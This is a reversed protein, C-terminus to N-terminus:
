EVCDNDMIYYSVLRYEVPLIFVVNCNIDLSPESGTDFNVTLMDDDATPRESKDEYEKKRAPFLERGIPKREEGRNKMPPQNTSSEAMVKENSEREAKTRRQQRRWQSRSM